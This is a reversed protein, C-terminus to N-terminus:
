EEDETEKLEPPTKAHKRRQHLQSFGVSTGLNQTVRYVNYFGTCVGLFFLILFFAPKTGLWHDLGLGLLTSLIIASVLEFGAQIGARSNTKEEAIKKQANTPLHSHRAKEIKEGLDEFDSSM